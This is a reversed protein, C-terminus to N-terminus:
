HLLANNPLYYIQSVCRLQFICLFYGNVVCKIDNKSVFIDAQEYILHISRSLHICLHVKTFSKESVISKSM